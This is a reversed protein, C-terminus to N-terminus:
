RIGLMNERIQRASLVVDYISPEDIIGKFQRSTGGSSGIEVQIASSAIDGTCDFSESVANKYLLIHEGDYTVAVHTWTNLPIDVSMRHYAPVDVGYFYVQLPGNKYLEWYYAASKRIIVRSIGAILTPYIWAMMTIDSLIDLSTAVPVDVYDDLGDFSLGPGLYGKIWTPVNLTGDNEEPSSDYATLGTNEGFKLHLVPVPFKGSQMFGMAGRRLGPYFRRGIRPM